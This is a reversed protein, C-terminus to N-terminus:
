VAFTSVLEKLRDASALLRENLGVRARAVELAARANDRQARYLADEIEFLLSGASVFDGDKFHITKLKGTVEPRIDVVRFGETRGTFDAYDTVGKTVPLEVVVDPAAAKVPAPPPKACGGLAAAAAALLAAAVLRDRSLITM